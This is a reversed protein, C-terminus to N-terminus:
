LYHPVPVYTGAVGGVRWDRARTTRAMIWLKATEWIIMFSFDAIGTAREVKNRRSYRDGPCTLAHHGNESSSFTSSSAPDCFALPLSPECTRAPRTGKSIFVASCFNRSSACWSRLSDGRSLHWCLTLSVYGQYLDNVLSKTKTKNTALVM